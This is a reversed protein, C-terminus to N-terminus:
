ILRRRKTGGWRNMWSRRRNCSFTEERINRIVIMLILYFNSKVFIMSEPNYISDFNELSQVVRQMKKHSTSIYTQLSSSKVNDCIFIVIVIFLFLFLLLLFSWCCVPLIKTLGISGKGERDSREDRKCGSPVARYNCLPFQSVITIM